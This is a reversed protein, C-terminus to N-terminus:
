VCLWQYLVITFNNFAHVGTIAIIATAIGYKNLLAIYGICFIMGAVIASITLFVGGYVHLSGFLISSIFIAIWRNHKIYKNTLLGGVLLFLFFITEMLPAIIVSMLADIIGSDRIVEAPQEFFLLPLLVIRPILYSGCVLILICKLLSQKELFYIISNFFKNMFPQLNLSM